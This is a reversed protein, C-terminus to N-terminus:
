NLQTFMFFLLMIQLTSYFVSGSNDKNEKLTTEYIMLLKVYERELNSMNHYPRDMKWVKCILEFIHRDIKTFIHNITLNQHLSSGELKKWHFKIIIVLTHNGTLDM